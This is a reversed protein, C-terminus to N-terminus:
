YASHKSLLSARLENSLNNMNSQVKESYAEDLAENTYEEDGSNVASLDEIETMTLKRPRLISNSDNLDHLQENM